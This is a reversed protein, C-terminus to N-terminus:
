LMSTLYKIVDLYVDYIDDSLFNYMSHFFYSVPFLAGYAPNKTTRYQCIGYALIYTYFMHGLNTLIGRLFVANFVDMYKVLTEAFSFGSATFMAFFIFEKKDLVYFRSFILVPIIKLIEEISIRFNYVLLFLSNFSIIYNLTCRYLVLMLAGCGFGFLIHEINHYKIRYIFIWTAYILILLYTEPTM